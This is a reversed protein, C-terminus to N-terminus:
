LLSGMLLPLSGHVKNSALSFKQKHRIFNYVFVDTALHEYIYKKIYIYCPQKM